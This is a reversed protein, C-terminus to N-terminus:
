SGPKSYVNRLSPKPTLRLIMAYLKTITPGFDSGAHILPRVGKSANLFSVHELILPYLTIPISILYSLSDM